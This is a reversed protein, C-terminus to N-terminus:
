RILNEPACPTFCAFGIQATAQGAQARKKRIGRKGSGFMMGEEDICTYKSPVLNIIKFYM